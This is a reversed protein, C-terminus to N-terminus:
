NKYKRKEGNKIWLTNEKKGGESGHTYGIVEFGANGLIDAFDEYHPCRGRICTSIHVTDTGSKKIKEIKQELNGLPDQSCGPCTNFATIQLSEGQHEAFADAKENFTRFCGNASCKKSVEGCIFIMIKKM